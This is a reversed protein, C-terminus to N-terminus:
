SLRMWTRCVRIQGILYRKFTVGDAFIKWLRESLVIGPSTGRTDPHAAPWHRLLVVENEDVRGDALIGKALGLMESVDREIRRDADFAFNLPKGESDTRPKM